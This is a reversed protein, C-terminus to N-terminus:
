MMLTPHEECGPAAERIIIVNGVGDKRFSLGHEGAWAEMFEQVGEEKGSCRPIASISEFIEWVIRPQLGKLVESMHTSCDDISLRIIM